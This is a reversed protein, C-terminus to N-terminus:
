KNEQETTKAPPRWPQRRRNVDWLQFGIDPSERPDQRDIKGGDDKENPGISYIVVGDALRRYRLPKADYPDLPIKKLYEPVLVSLSEPWHGHPIRYREVALAVIASRLLAQNRWFGRGVKGVAPMLLGAAPPLEREHVRQDILRAYNRLKVPQEEIPLKAIEVLENMVRLYPGHSRRIEMEGSVDTWWREFKGPPKMMNATDLSSVKLKGNEIAEMMRHYGARDGRVGLLFLPQAGELEFDRQMNALSNAQAHGQALIRELTNIAGLEIALRVLQSVLCPEDGIARSASLISLVSTLAGDIDDEQARLRADHWLLNMATRSDQCSLRTSMFDLAWNVPYRGSHLNQLKRAKALPEKAIEMEARLLRTQESNLQLEPSLELLAEEISQLPDEDHGAQEAPKPMQELSAPWQNPVLTRLAMIQIASNELDPIVARKAVLEELRWGPDLRDAEAIADQLEKELLSQNYFHWGLLLGAILVGLLAALAFRRKWM